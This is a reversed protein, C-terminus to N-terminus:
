EDRIEGHECFQEVDGALRGYRVREEPRVDTGRELVTVSSRKAGISTAILNHVEMLDTKLNCTFVDFAAYGFEPWTHFSVHSEAVLLVGSTGLPEFKHMVEGLVTMDCRAAVERMADQLLGISDIVEFDCGYFELIAHVGMKGM